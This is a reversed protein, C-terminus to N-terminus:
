RTRCSFRPTIRTTPVSRQYLMSQPLPPSRRCGTLFDRRSSTSSVCSSLDLTTRASSSAVRSPRCRAPLARRDKVERSLLLSANRYVANVPCAFVRVRVFTQATSPRRGLRFAGLIRCPSSSSFAGLICCPLDFAGLVLCPGCFAGLVRRPVSGFRLCPSREWFAVILIELLLIELM